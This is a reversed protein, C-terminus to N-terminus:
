YSNAPPETLTVTPSGDVVSGVLEYTIPVGDCDLDGIAKATFSGGDSQFAYQFLAPEDIQLDLAQWLPNDAWASAPSVCRHDPGQCCATAPTLGVAGRPFQGQEVYARKANKGIKTLMLIAERKGSPTATSPSAASKAVCVDSLCTLGPNCTANGYCPGRETGAPAGGRGCGWSALGGLVWLARALRALQGSGSFAVKRM